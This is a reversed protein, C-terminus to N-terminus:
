GFVCITDPNSMQWLIIISVGGECFSSDGKTESLFRKLKALVASPDPFRLINDSFELICHPMKLGIIVFLFVLTVGPDHVLPLERLKSLM